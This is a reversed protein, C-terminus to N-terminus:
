CAGSRWSVGPTRIMGRAKSPVPDSVELNVICADPSVAQLEILAKGWVYAPGVPRPIPGSAQEALAIYDRADHVRSEYIELASPCMLIQDVGRGTMVDGCLFL